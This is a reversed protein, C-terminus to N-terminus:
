MVFMSGFYFSRHGWKRFEQGIHLSNSEKGPEGVVYRRWKKQAQIKLFSSLLDRTREGARAFKKKKFFLFFFKVTLIGV